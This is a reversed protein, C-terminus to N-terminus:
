DGKKFFERKEFTYFYLRYFNIFEYLINAKSNEDVYFM